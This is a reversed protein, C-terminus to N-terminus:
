NVPELQLVGEGDIGGTVQAGGQRFQGVDQGGNKSDVVLDHVLGCQRPEHLQVVCEYEGEVAVLLELVSADVNGFARLLLQAGPIGDLHFGSSCAVQDLHGVLALLPVVFLEAGQGGHFCALHLSNVRCQEHGDDSMGGIKVEVVYVVVPAPAEKPQFRAFAQFLHEGAGVHQFLGQICVGGNFICDGEEVGGVFPVAGVGFPALNREAAGPDFGYQVVNLEVLTVAQFSFPNSSM